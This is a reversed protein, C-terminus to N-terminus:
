VCAATAAVVAGAADQETCIGLYLGLCLLLGLGPMRQVDPWLRVIALRKFWNMGLHIEFVAGGAKDVLAWANGFVKTRYWRFSRGDALVLDGDKLWEFTFSAALAESGAEVAVARDRFFGRRDLTWTLGGCRAIAQDSLCKTWYLEGLQDEGAWLEYHEVAWKPQKWLLTTKILSELPKM